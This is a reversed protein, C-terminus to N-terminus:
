PVKRKPAPQMTIAYSWAFGISRGVSQGRLPPATLVAGSAGVKYEFPEGTCPDAPVPVEHIDKFSAPLKGDHAGAYLRIAEVCRLGALKREIRYSTEFVKEVAPLLLTALFTGAILNAKAEKLQREADAVGKRTQPYPLGYWKVMEDYLRDFNYIEYLLAVQSVPMEDVVKASRGQKLLFQRAEPYSKAALLAMLPKFQWSNATRLGATQGIEIHKTLLRDFEAAPLPTAQPDALMERWGPFLSDITIKEGQIPKRLDVFPSPLDTLTWYLNPAGPQQILLEVEEIMQSAMALGVLGQILTPGEGVHRSLTFGTQLTYLAQDHKGDLMEFRARAALLVIHTRFSQIDPLLMMIGEMRLRDIMEWDCYARRAGIDLEKLAGFNKVFVLEPPPPKSKDDHWKDISKWFDKDRQIVIQWEPSFARYYSVVSNGPKLDRLEPLLRYKLAPVTASAPEVKLKVVRIAPSAPEGAIMSAAARCLLALSLWWVLGFRLRPIEEASAQAEPQYPLQQRDALPARATNKWHRFFHIM